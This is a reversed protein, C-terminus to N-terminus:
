GNAWAIRPDISRALRYYMPRFGRRPWFRSSLLNTVRWDTQCYAYGAARMAALAHTTLARGLGHGRLNERTSAAVLETCGEPTLLDDNSPEAPLYVHLGVVQGDHEAFWVTATGDDVLEAYGDRYEDITEPPVPAWVPARTQYTAILPAMDRLVDRDVETAQRFTVSTLPEVPDAELDDLALLAHAQQQGFCLAFWADLGARDAASVLVYHDFYGASVWAPAAAAYLDRYVEAPADEHLAQGAWRMWVTRGLLASTTCEGLLYGVLRDEQQAVMGSTHSRRWTTEVATRAVSPDEFRAPLEMLTVRERRHRRALLDAAEDIFDDHFPVLEVRM